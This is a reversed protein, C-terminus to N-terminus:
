RKVAERANETRDRKEILSVFAHEMSPLIKEVRSINWGEQEIRTRINEATLNRDNTIVHLTNSFLFADSFEPFEPMKALLKEPHACQIEFIRDDVMQTKIEEPAGLAILEGRYVMGLRDCYEAEEMYHTTVFVTVGTGSLTYILTWFQRRSIPDVGSTPEDLFLVPPEHLVACGLALRQKWGASLFGTRLNIQDTLGAMELVWHKRELKKNKPINYIGSYFNINEEVTLDDYLSFKQSMYGINSKIQEAEKRLDFGAVTGSGGTPALLGCLMRITTSKGAGNPGLFGFIEGRSVEFSIRDVAIFSGFRRELNKVSVAIDHPSSKM